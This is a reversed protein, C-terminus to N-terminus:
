QASWEHLTQNAHIGLGHSQNITINAHRFITADKIPDHIALTPGDLDILQIVDYNAAALHAAAAVGISSELMCGIMCRIKQQRCYEIIQLAGYLGGTKVLKINIIDAADHVHLAKVQALNFASEDAMLPTKIASKIRRLGDIDSAHVPQELLEFNMNKAELTQMIEITTDADWGQNADLRLTIPFKPHARVHEYIAQIRILDASAQSGIKIKLCRYGRAIANDIDFLMEDLSNVSITYDTTLTTTFTHIHRPALLQALPVKRYRALADYLAIDVAAKANTGAKNNNHVRKIIRDFDDLSEGILDDRLEELIAKAISEHDEHTIAPTSPASGFSVIGNECEIRVVTDHLSNVTRLATKFPTHLPAKLSHLTINKILM